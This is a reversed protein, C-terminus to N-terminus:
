AAERSAKKREHEKLYRKRLRISKPTIEVLEDDEIFEVKGELKIRMIDYTDLAGETYQASAHNGAALM